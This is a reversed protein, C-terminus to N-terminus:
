YSSSLFMPQKDCGWESGVSLVGGVDVGVWQFCKWVLYFQTWTQGQMVQSFNSLRYSGQNKRLLTPIIMDIWLITPLNLNLIFFCLVQSFKLVMGAGPVHCATFLDTVQGEGMWVPEHEALGGERKLENPVVVLPFATQGTTKKEEGRRRRFSWM